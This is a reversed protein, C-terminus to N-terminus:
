SCSRAEVRSYDGSDIEDPWPLTAGVLGGLNEGVISCGLDDGETQTPQVEWPGPTAKEALAKLEEIM